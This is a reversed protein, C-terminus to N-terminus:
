KSLKKLASVAAKAAAQADALAKAAEPKGAEDAADFAAKADEAATAAAEVDAKAKGLADFLRDEEDEEANAAIKYAGQPLCGALILRKAQETTPIPDFIDGLRFRKGTRKDVCEALVTLEKTM